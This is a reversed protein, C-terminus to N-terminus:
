SAISRRRRWAYALLGTMGSLLLVLATPEPIQQLQLGNFMAFNSPNGGSFTGQIAGSGDATVDLFTVYDRNAVFSGDFGGPTSTVSSSGITFTSQYASNSSACYLYVDYHGNPALGTLTFVASTPPIEWAVNGGKVFAFESALANSTYTEANATILGLDFRVTSSTGDAYILNRSQAPDVALFTGGSFSDVVYHNWVDGSAGIAAAGSHDTTSQSSDSRGNIEVNLLTASVTPVWGALAIGLVGLVIQSRM